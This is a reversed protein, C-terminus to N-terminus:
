GQQATGCRRCFRATASLSLGCSLCPRVAPRDGSGDASGQLVGQSSAAWLADMGGRPVAPRDLFPLGPTAEAAASPWQPTTPWQPAPAPPLVAPPIVDSDPAVRDWTPQRVVDAARAVPPAPPTPASAAAAALAAAELARRREAVDEDTDAIVPEPEAAVVPEPASIVPEPEAFAVPEPEAAPELDPEAFAVPEPEAIVPDPEAIVPDPEAAVMPETETAAVRAEDPESVFLGSALIAAEAARHDAAGDEAEDAVAEDSGFLAGLRAAVDIPELDADDAAGEAALDMDGSILDPVPLPEAAARAAAIDAELAENTSAAPEVDVATLEVESEAAVEMTPALDVVDDHEDETARVPLDTSPWALAEPEEAPHGNSLLADLHAAPELAADDPRDLERGLLPRCSLCFGDVENWCNACTYQRCSMCFNFTQHFADLQRTTRERDTDSRAAAMAEGVSTHDDLVFTKAAKSLVKVGRLKPGRRSASEFTYRTGCRECFSETLIQAM